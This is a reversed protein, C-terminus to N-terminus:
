EGDVLGRLALGMAISIDSFLGSWPVRTNDNEDEFVQTFEIQGDPADFDLLSLLVQQAGPWNAISGLLCVRSVPVGHTESATFVLVRNIEEVLELFCPKVIELLTTSIDSESDAFGLALTQHKQFGNNLVLHLASEITIDLERAIRELLLREGFKVSQNFLLRRGSIVTLYSDDHYCNIMLVNDAAHGTYLASVIRRLATPAVDLSDVELGADMLAQLLTNVKERSAVTAVVMHEEDSPNSRVPVYDVVYDEIKGEVRSALMRVVEADVDSITAKYTLLVIKVDDWPMLAAVRRGKFRKEKLGDGILSKLRKPSALLEDRTGSYTVSTKAIITYLGHERPRIQCMHIQGADIDLGILGPGAPKAPSVAKRRFKQLITM